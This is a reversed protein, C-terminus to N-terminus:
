QKATSAPPAEAPATAPAVDLGKRAAGRGFTFWLQAELRNMLAPPSTLKVVLQYQGNLDFFIDHHLLLVPSTTAYTVGQGGYRIIRFMPLNPAGKPIPTTLIFGKPDDERVAALYQTISSPSIDPMFEKEGYLSFSLRAAPAKAYVFAFSEGFGKPALTWDDLPDFEWEFDPGEVFSTLVQMGDFQITHTDVSMPTCTINITELPKPLNEEDAFPNVDDPVPDPPPIPPTAPAKASATPTVATTAAAPAPTTAASTAPAPAAITISIPAPAATTSPAAPASDQGFAATALLSAIVVGIVPFPFRM